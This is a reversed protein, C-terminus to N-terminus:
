YDKKVGGGENENIKWEIICNGIIGDSQDKDMNEPTIQSYGHQKLFVYFIRQGAVEQKLMDAVLADKTHRRYNTQMISDLIEKNKKESM